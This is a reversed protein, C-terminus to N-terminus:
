APTIKLNENRSTTIITHLLLMEYINQLVELYALLTNKMPNAYRM